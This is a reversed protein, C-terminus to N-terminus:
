KTESWEFYPELEGQSVDLWRVSSRTLIRRSFSDPMQEIVSQLVNARTSVVIVQPSHILTGYLGEFAGRLDNQSSCTARALSDLLENVLVRSQVNPALALERGAVAVSMKHRGRGVLHVAMTAAFSIAAEVCQSSADLKGHNTSTQHLDLILVVQMRQQQEFQRVSIEGLRASTRWHIWRQSDGNNWQRLGYFEGEHVGARAVARSLGQREIRLLEQHRSSLTGLRPHVIIQSRDLFLRSAHGLNLPYRSSVVTPGIEYVGRQSFDLQYTAHRARLPPVDDLLALGKQPNLEPYPATRVISEEVTLLWSSMWRRSNGIGVVIDVAQGCVTSNPVQRRFHLGTLTQLGIRWQLLLLSAMVGALVVLLAIDRLVSGVLIFLLILVFHFGERSLRFRIQSLARARKAARRQLM